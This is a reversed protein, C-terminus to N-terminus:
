SSRACGRAQAWRLVDAGAPLCGEAGERVRQREGTQGGVVAAGHGPWRRGSSPLKDAPRLPAWLCSHGAAGGTGAVCTVRVSSRVCACVCVGREASLLRRYTFTATRM